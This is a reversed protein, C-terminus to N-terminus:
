GANHALELAAVAQKDGARRKLVVKMLEPREKVEQQGIHERRRLYLQKYFPLISVWGLVEVGPEIEAAATKLLLVHDLLQVRQQLREQQAAELGLHLLVQGGLLLGLDVHTQALHLAGPVGLYVFGLDTNNNTHEDAFRARVSFIRVLSRSMKFPAPLTSFSRSSFM